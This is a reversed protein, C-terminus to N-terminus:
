LALRSHFVFTGTAIFYQNELANSYQASGNKLNQTIEQLPQYIFGELRFNLNGIITLVNKLGAGIYNHARFQPLFLTSAQPIPEFQQASLITAPIIQLFLSDRFLLDSSFGMKLPGFTKFYNDYIIRLQLWKM